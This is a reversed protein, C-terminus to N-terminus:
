KSLKAKFYDVWPIPTPDIKNEMALYFSVFSGLVLIEFIECYKDESVTSYVLSPFGNKDVVDKTIPYRKLVNESYHKSEIFFFTLIERANKPFGLGELLHHNAEPIDFHASFTKANENIQNTFAHAIGLLHESAFLVPIKGELNKALMKAINDKLNTSDYLSIYKKLTETIQMEEDAWQIFGYKSLLASLSGISYGLGMRPQKSPNNKPDFIYRPLNNEKLFRSLKGGTTIGLIKAKKELCLRAASLTEETDGSYSSLIVFTLPGVYNPIRYETYVEIPVRARGYSLSDVIRGGLASGGMGCVIVNNCAGVGDMYPLVGVEEWAQSFQEPLLRISELIKGSDYNIQMRLSLGKLM